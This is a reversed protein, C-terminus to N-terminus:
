NASRVERPSHVHVRHMHIKSFLATFKRPKEAIQEEMLIAEDVYQAINGQEDEVTYRIGQNYNGVVSDMITVRTGRVMIGNLNAVDYKLIMKADKKYKPEAGTVRPFEKFM